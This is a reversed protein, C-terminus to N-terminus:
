KVTLKQRVLLARAARRQEQDLERGMFMQLHAPQALLTLAVLALASLFNRVSNM